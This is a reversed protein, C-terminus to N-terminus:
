KEAYVYYMTIDNWVGKDTDLEEMKADYDRQAQAVIEPSVNVLPNPHQGPSFEDKTLWAGKAQELPIFYGMKEERIDFKRFGSDVLLQRCKDLTGTPTNLIYSIGYNALVERTVSVWVYSTEPLAHFGLGGGPKLLGRWHKLTAVPDLIWFFASACYMRDFSNPPFGLNEADVRIFELHDHGSASLKARAQALMGESLDIGVVKGHPGVRSAAHLAITGTGTAIDLVRDGPRPPLDAVLRLATKRHWESEDYTRSRENYTDTITKHYARLDESNM